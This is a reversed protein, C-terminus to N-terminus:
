PFMNLSDVSEVECSGQHRPPRDDVEQVMLGSDDFSRLKQHVLSDSSEIDLDTDQELPKDSCADIPHEQVEEYAVENSNSELRLMADERYLLWRFRDTFQVPVPRLSEASAEGDSMENDTLKNLDSYLSNTGNGVLTRTEQDRSFQDVAKMVFTNLIALLITGIFLVYFTPEVNVNTQLCQADEEKLLGYFSM